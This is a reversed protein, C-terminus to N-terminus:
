GRRSRKQFARAKLGWILTTETTASDFLGLFGDSSFFILFPTVSGANGAASVGLTNNYGASYISTNTNNYRFYISSGKIGYIGSGNEDCYATMDYSGMSGPFISSLPMLSMAENYYTLGVITERTSYGPDYFPFGGTGCGCDKLAQVLGAITNTANSWATQIEAKSKTSVPVAFTAKTTPVSGVSPVAGFKIRKHYLMEAM